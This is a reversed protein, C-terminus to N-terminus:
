LKYHIGVLVNTSNTYVPNLDTVPHIPASTYTDNSMRINTLGLNNRIEATLNWKDSLPFKVGAGFSFGLDMKKMDSTRDLETNAFSETYKLLYGVYPGGNIFIPGNKFQYRVLLPVTIYNYTYNFSHNSGLNKGEMDVLKMNIGKCGKSEYAINAVLSLAESFSYRLQLSVPVSYQWDYYRKLDAGHLSTVNLGTGFGIELNNQASTLLTFLTFTLSLFLTKM